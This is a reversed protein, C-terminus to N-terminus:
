PEAKWNAWENLTEDTVYDYRWIFSDEGACIVTRTHMSIAILVSLDANPLTFRVHSNCAFYNFILTVQQRACLYM